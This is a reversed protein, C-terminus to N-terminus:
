DSAGPPRSAAPPGDSGTASLPTRRFLTILVSDTLFQILTGALLWAVLYAPQVHTSDTFGSNFAASVVLPLYFVLLVMALASAGLRRRVVQVSRRVGEVVGVGDLVIAYDAYLTFPTTALLLLLAYAGLDNDALGIFAVEILGFGVSYRTLRSFTEVPPRWAYRGDALAVIYCARLWGTAVALIFFTLPVAVWVLASSHGLAGIARWAITGDFEARSFSSFSGFRHRAAAVALDLAGGIAALAILYVLAPQRHALLTRLARWFPGARM